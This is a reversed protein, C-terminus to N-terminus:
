REPWWNGGGGKDGNRGKGWQRKLRNNILALRLLM